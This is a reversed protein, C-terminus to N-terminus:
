QRRYRNEIQEVLEEIGVLALEQNESTAPILKDLLKHFELGLHKYNIWHRAFAGIREALAATILGEEEAQKAARGLRAFISM